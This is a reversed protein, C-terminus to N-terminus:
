SASAQALERLLAIEANRDSASMISQGAVFTDAGAEALKEINSSKIGGDVQISLDPLTDRALTKSESIKPIVSEMISQGGFGPEVMMILLMDIDALFSEVERLETGPKLALGVKSGSNRVSKITEAVKSCAEFHFTVSFAGTDAYMPAWRDPNDIMLHVDLPVKSVEQLRAVVPLGITLNPVFHGDMVDVHILDSRTISELDKELNAFDASLISAAIRIM